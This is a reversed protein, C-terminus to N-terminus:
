DDEGTLGELVGRIYPVSVKKSGAVSYVLEDAADYSMRVEKGSSDFLYPRKSRAEEFSNRYRDIVEKREENKKRNEQRKNYSHWFRDEVPRNIKSYNKAREVEKMMSFAYHVDAMVNLTKREPSDPPNHSNKKYREMQSELFSINKDLADYQVRAEEIVPPRKKYNDLFVASQTQYEDLSRIKEGEKKAQETRKNEAPIVASPNNKVNDPERTIPASISSGNGYKEAMHNAYSKQASEARRHEDMEQHLEEIEQNTGHQEAQALDKDVEERPRSIEFHRQPEGDPGKLRCKDNAPCDVLMGENNGSAQIHKRGM